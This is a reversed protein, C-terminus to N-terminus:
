YGWWNSSTSVILDAIVALLKARIERLDDEALTTPEALREM